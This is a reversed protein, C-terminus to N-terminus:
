MISSVERKQSWSGVISSCAPETPDRFIFTGCDCSRAGAASAPWSIAVDGFSDRLPRCCRARVARVTALAEGTWRTAMTPLPIAPSVRACAILHARSLDASETSM